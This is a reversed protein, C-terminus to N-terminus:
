LDPGTLGLSWHKGCLEEGDVQPHYSALTPGSLNGQSEPSKFVKYHVVCLTREALIADTKVYEYM